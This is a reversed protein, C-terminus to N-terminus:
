RAGRAASHGRSSWRGGRRAALFEELEVAEPLVFPVLVRPPISGARAYYPKVFSTLAEADSEDALNELLFIDRSTTKGDRIAFLQM